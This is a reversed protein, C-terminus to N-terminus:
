AQPEKLLVVTRGFSYDGEWRNTETFELYCGDCWLIRTSEIAM